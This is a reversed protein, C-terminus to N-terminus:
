LFREVREKLTSSGLRLSPFFNTPRQTAPKTTSRSLLKNRLKAKKFPHIYSDNKEITIKKRKDPVMDMHLM